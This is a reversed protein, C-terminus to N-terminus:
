VGKYLNNERIYRAVRDPVLRRLSLGRAARERIDTSSIDIPEIDLIITNKKLGPVLAELAMLDPRKSGARTFAVLTCLKVLVDPNHWKPLEILNDWGIILFLKAETGLDQKLASLTDVTYSPGKRDIETTSVEFYPNTEIAIKIMKIRHPAPTIARDTKLWPQGAPIFIIRSLSLKRRTEEAIALHGLHVPDFTGGLVGIKM